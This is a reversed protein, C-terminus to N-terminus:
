RIEVERHVEVEISAGEVPTFTPIVPIEIHEHGDPFETESPRIEALDTSLPIPKSQVQAASTESAPAMVEITEPRPKFM